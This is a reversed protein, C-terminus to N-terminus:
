SSGPDELYRAVAQKWTGQAEMLRSIVERAAGQGGRSELVLDASARVEPPADAPAVGIGSRRMVPVDVLEDGVYLCESADLDHDALIRAFSELKDSQGSHVFSLRLDEARHLTAPDDRGSLLGVLLGADLALRIAQGDRVHFRKLIVGQPGYSVTGDTLVGDVDLIIARIRSADSSWTM